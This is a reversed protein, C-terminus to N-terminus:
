RLLYLSKTVSKGGCSNQLLIMTVTFLSGQGRAKTKNDVNPQKIMEYTSPFSPLLSSFRSIFAFVFFFGCLSFGGTLCLQKSNCFPLYNKKKKRGQSALTSPTLLAMSVGSCLGCKIALYLAGEPAAGWSIDGQLFHKSPYPPLPVDLCWLVANHALLM